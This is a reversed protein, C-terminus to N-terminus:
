INEFTYGFFKIDKKYRESIMKKTRSDYYTSYHNRSTSNRHTLKVPEINIKKCVYDFDKDLEEFKGVFDVLLKGEKNYLFDYQSKFHVESYEDPTSYIAFVFEKFTINPKFWGYISFIKGGRHSVDGESSNRIKNLYCSVVRDWPNRVFGFKFYEDFRKNELNEKNVFNFKKISHIDDLDKHLLNAIVVKISSCAIKPITFYIFKYENVVIHNIKQKFIKNSYDYKIYFIINQIIKNVNIM